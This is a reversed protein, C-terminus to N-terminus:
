TWFGILQGATNWGWQGPPVGRFSINTATYPINTIVAGNGDVVSFINTFVNTRDIIPFIVNGSLDVHPPLQPNNDGGQNSAANRGTGDDGRGVVPISTHPKNPVIIENMTFFRGNTGLDVFQMSALGGRAGSQVVDWFGVPSAGQGLVSSAGALLTAAALGLLAGRPANKKALKSQM